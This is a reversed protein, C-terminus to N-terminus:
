DPRLSPAYSYVWLKDFMGDRAMDELTFIRPPEVGRRIYSELAWQSFLQLDHVIDMLEYDVEKEDSYISLIYEEVYHRYTGILHELPYMPPLDLAVKAAIFTADTAHLGKLLIFLDRTGNMRQNGEIIRGTAEYIDRMSVQIAGVVFNAVLRQHNELHALQQNQSRIVFGLLLILGVMCWIIYKTIRSNM